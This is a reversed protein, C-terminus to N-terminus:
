ETVREIVVTCNIYDMAGVAGNFEFSVTDSPQLLDSVHKRLANTIEKAGINLRAVKVKEIRTREEYYWEIAIVNEIMVPTMAGRRSEKAHELANRYEPSPNDWAHADNPDHSWLHHKTFYGRGCAPDIPEYYIKVTHPM